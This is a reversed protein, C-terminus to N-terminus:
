CLGNVVTYPSECKNCVGKTNVSMCHPNYVCSDNNIVTYNMSCHEAYCGVFILGIVFFM